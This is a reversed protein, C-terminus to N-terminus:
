TRQTELVPDDHDAACENEEQAIYARLIDTMPYGRTSIFDALHKAFFEDKHRSSKAENDQQKLADLICTHILLYLEHAIADNPLSFATGDSAQYYPVSRVTGREQDSGNSNM